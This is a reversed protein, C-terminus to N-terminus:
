SEFTLNQLADILQNTNEKNLLMAKTVQEYFFMSNTYTQMQQLFHFRLSPKGQYEDFSIGAEISNTDENACKIVRSDIGKYKSM